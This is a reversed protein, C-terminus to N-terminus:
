KGGTAYEYAKMNSFAKRGEADVNLGNRRCWEAFVGADYDIKFVTYGEVECRRCLERADRLWAEYTIPLKDSDKFTARDRVYTEPRYWIVGAVKITM